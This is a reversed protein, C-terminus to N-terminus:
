RITCPRLTDAIEGVTSVLEDINVPKSIARKAGLKLACNLYYSKSFWGDEAIAIIRVDPFDKTLEMIIEIGDMEQMVISTILVDSPRDRYLSVAARGGSAEAVEYGAMELESRMQRRVQDDEEVLLVYKLPNGGDIGVM